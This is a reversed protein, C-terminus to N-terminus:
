AVSCHGNLSFIDHSGLRPWRSGRGPKLERCPQPWLKSPVAEAVAAIAVFTAISSPPTVPVTLKKPHGASSPPEPFVKIARSPINSPQSAKKVQCVHSAVPGKVFGVAVMILIPVLYAAVARLPLSAIAGIVAFETFSGTIKSQVRDDVLYDVKLKLMVGWIAFMVIMGYAWASIDSLIPVSYAKFVKILLYAIGAAVFILASYFALTDVSSSM